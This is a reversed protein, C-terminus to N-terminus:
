AGSMGFSRLGLGSSGLPWPSHTTGPIKQDIALQVSEPPAPVAPVSPTVAQLSVAHHLLPVCHSVEGPQSTLLICSYQHSELRPPTAM